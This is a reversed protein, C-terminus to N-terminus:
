DCRDPPLEGTLRQCHLGMQRAWEVPVAQRHRIMEGEVMDRKKHPIDICACGEVGINETKLFDRVPDALSM